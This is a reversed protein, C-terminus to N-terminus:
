YLKNAQIYEFVENGVFNRAEEFRGAKYAERFQTSSIEGIPTNTQGLFIHPPKLYWQVEPNFNYGKRPVVVFRIMKELYEYNVWKDFSNANDMGIIWSYSYTHKAYEEDQLMKVTQYTEGKLQHKIEYDFVKIRADVKAAIRCMELRHEASIMNKGYMHGYCPMLHVEDFVKSTDLVYKAVQIHGITIPAFAGGLIAVQTKRGLTKYQTKRHDIKKLTNRILEEFNWNHENCLMITSALLDGTEEHMKQLDTIRSLEIAEGLIDDLRQKLPTRGFADEFTTKVEDQIM